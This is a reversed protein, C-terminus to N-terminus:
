ANKEFHVRAAQIHKQELIWRTCKEEIPRPFKNRFFNRLTKPSIDLEDALANPTM